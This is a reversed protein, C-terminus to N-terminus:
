TQEYILAIGGRGQTFCVRCYKGVPPVPQIEFGRESGGTNCTNLQCCNGWKPGCDLGMLSMEFVQHFATLEIALARDAQFCQYRKFLYGRRNSSGM